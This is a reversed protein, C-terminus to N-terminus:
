PERNLTFRLDRIEADPVRKRIQELIKPVLYMLHHRLTANEVYIWLTTGQIRLPKTQAALHIGIIEEWLPLVQYNAIGQRLNARTLLGNLTPSIHDM